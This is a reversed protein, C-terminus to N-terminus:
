SKRSTKAYFSGLRQAVDRSGCKPCKRRGKEYEAFAMIEEFKKGCKRCEFSSTPMVTAGKGRIPGKQGRDSYIGCLAPPLCPGRVARGPPRGARALRRYQIGATEGPMMPPMPRSGNM